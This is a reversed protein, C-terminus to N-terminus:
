GDKKRPHFQKFMAEMSISSLHAYKQTTALSNHGLLIQIMSIGAGEELLHTACAHRFTHPTVGKIEAKKAYTNVIECLLQRRMQKFNMTLFLYGEEIGRYENVYAAIWQAANETMPITRTKKGKGCSIRVSSQTIDELELDCLESARLGSSYLLELIARDRLGSFTKINPQQLILTIENKTLIKPPKNHIKPPKVDFTVDKEVIKTKKLYNFFCKIAVLYRNLTSDSKGTAKEYVLYNIIHEPKVRTARKVEKNEIFILFKKVDHHYGQVTNSSMSLTLQNTFNTLTELTWNSNLSQNLM